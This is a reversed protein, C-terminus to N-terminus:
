QLLTKVTKENSKISNPSVGKSMYVKGKGCRCPASLCQGCISIELRNGLQNILTLVSNNEPSCKCPLSFCRDSLEHM